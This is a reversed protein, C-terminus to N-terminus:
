VQVVVPIIMPQKETKSFIFESAIRRLSNRLESYYTKSNPDLDLSHFQNRVENKIEDFLVQSNKMYVFGRSIIEPGNVLKKQKNVVMVLIVSGQTAMQRREELVIESVAGVGTGDVLYCHESIVEETLVIDESRMDTIRGNESIVLNEFPIGMMAGLEGVKRIMYHDGHVPQIHSPRVLSFMLKLDEQCAHGSVHLDFEKYNFVNVGLRSLKATLDQVADENGPIVGSSFIVTDGGQLKVLDHEERAMRNLAAADEGQSGTCLICVKEPPYNKTERVDIVLNDPVKIKGLRYCAEFNNIMSRGTLALKRNYYECADIVHQIRAISSSFTTFIIRERSEYFLKKVTKSIDRESIQYGPKLVGLSDTILLRVGKDGIEALKAYDSLQGDFPTNDFKWDTCYAIRGMPTDIALGVVDPISHNLRFFEVKFSGFTLIEDMNIIKARFQKDLQFDQLRIKLLELTLPMGYIPVDGLKPLVYPAGGIHDLHGHTYIVAKIKHRNQELYSTDPIIYDIGPYKEGGGFGFGTDIVIIDDGCEIATMNMGVENAGGMPIVRVAPGQPFVKPSNSDMKPGQNFYPSINPDALNGKKLSGTKQALNSSGNKSPGAERDVVHRRKLYTPNSSPQANTKKEGDRGFNFGGKRNRNNRRNGNNQNNSSHRNNRNDSKNFGSRNQGSRKEPSKEVM